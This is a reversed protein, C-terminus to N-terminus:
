PSVKKPPQGFLMWSPYANAKYSLDNVNDTIQRVNDASVTLDGQMATLTQRLVIISATLQEIMLSLEQNDTAKNVKSLLRNLELVSDNLGNGQGDTGAVMGNLNTLLLDIKAQTEALNMHNFNKLANEVNDLLINVPSPQSPVVPYKPTWSYPLTALKAPDRVFDLEIYNIGTIGQGRIQARLGDHVLKEIYKDADDETPPTIQMRVVVYQKREAYPVSEEYISGSLAIMQVQGIRVGRFRVPAGVDLGQVSERIYTEVTMTKSFLNRAGFILVLAVLAAAGLLVFIGLRYYQATQRNSM